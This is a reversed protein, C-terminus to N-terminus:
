FLRKEIFRVLYFDCFEYYLFQKMSAIVKHFDREIFANNITNIMLSLRSLIWQDIITINIPKQYIKENTMLLIYKSAQWIKNLFYKNTQCEMINFNIHQDILYFYKYINM